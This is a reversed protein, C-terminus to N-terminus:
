FGGGRSIISLGLHGGLTLNKDNRELRMNKVRFKEVNMLGNLLNTFDSMALGQFKLELDAGKINESDITPTFNTITVQNQPISYRGLISKLKVAAESESNLAVPALVQVGSSDLINKARVYQDFTKILDKKEQISTRLGSNSWLLPIVILLPFFVISLHIIESFLKKEKESLNSLIEQVQNYEPRAEVIAVKSAIFTDLDRLLSKKM